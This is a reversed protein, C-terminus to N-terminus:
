LELELGENAILIDMDMSSTKHQEMIEKYRLARMYVEDLKGDDYAPDHHFLILKKVDSKMAIDTAISASSHGWDIKHLHEEFTYQTDFVLVDAGQFFDLYEEIEDMDEIKFEADTALIFTKGDEELRFSYSGGPHRLIKQTINTGYLRWKEKEEHQYFFKESMMQDFEIPFHLLNNQYRLRQELNEVIGHIHFKNGPIYFPGFFPIGQIHDWHTHTFIMACEGIGKGFDGAILESGLERIGTGADMIILDNNKTRVEICTTNGGYTERLSFPLSKIFREISASDLIDAPSAYQLARRIKNLVADGKLPTAISGRVGWFKIKM